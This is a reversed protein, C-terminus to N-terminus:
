KNFMNKVKGSTVLAGRKIEKNSNKKSSKKSAQKTQQKTQGKKIAAQRTSISARGICGRALGEEEYLRKNGQLTLGLV